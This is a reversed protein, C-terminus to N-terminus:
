AVLIGVPFLALRVMMAADRQDASTAAAHWNPAFHFLRRQLRRRLLRADVSTTKTEQCNASRIRVALAVM